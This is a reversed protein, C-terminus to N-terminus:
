NATELVKLIHDSNVAQVLKFVTRRRNKRPNNVQLYQLARSQVKLAENIKDKFVNQIISYARKGHAIKLVVSLPCTALYVFCVHNIKVLQTRQNQVTFM